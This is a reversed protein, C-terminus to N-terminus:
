SNKPTPNQARELESIFLSAALISQQAKERIEPSTLGTLDKGVSNTFIFGSWHELSFDENKDNSLYDKLNFNPM